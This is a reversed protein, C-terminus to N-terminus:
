GDLSFIDGASSTDSQRLVKVVARWWSSKCAQQLRVNQSRDLIGFRITRVVVEKLAPAPRRGGPLLSIPVSTEGSGRPKGQFGEPGIQYLPALLSVVQM